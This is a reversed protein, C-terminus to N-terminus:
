ATLALKHAERKRQHKKWRLYEQKRDHAYLCAQISEVGYHFGMKDIVRLLNNRGEARGSTIRHIFYNMIYPLWNLVTALVNEMEKIASGLVETEWDALYELAHDYDRINYFEMLEQTIFYAKELATDMKLYSELRILEEGSLKFLSSLFLGADKKFDSKLTKPVDVKKRLADLGSQAIKVVHFRDIVVAAQPLVQLVADRYPKWMDISVAVVHEPYELEQLRRVVDEQKRGKDVRINNSKWSVSNDNLLWYYIAEGGNRSIFVEDMSLYTYRGKLRLHKESAGFEHARNAVTQVCVGLEGAIETFTQSGLKAIIYNEADHTLSRFDPLHEFSDMFTMNCKKCLYRCQKMKFLLPVGNVTGFTLTKSRYDNVVPRQDCVPCDPRTENQRLTLTITMGQNLYYAPTFQIEEFDYKEQIEDWFSINNKM